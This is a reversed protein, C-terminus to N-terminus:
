ILNGYWDREVPTFYIGIDKVIYVEIERFVEIKVEGFYSDRGAMVINIEIGNVLGEDNIYDDIFPVIAALVKQPCDFNHDFM